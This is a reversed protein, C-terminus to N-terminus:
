KPLTIFDLAQLRDMMPGQWRAPVAATGIAWALIDVDQEDLFAEFWDLEAESWALHHRDFYGGFFLFGLVAALILVILALIMGGGGGHDGTAIVTTERTVTPPSEDVIVTEKEREEM